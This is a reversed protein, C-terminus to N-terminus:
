LAASGVASSVAVLALATLLLQSGALHGMCAFFNRRVALKWWGVGGILGATFLGAYLAGNNVFAGAIGTAIGTLAGAILGRLAIHHRPKSAADPNLLAAFLSAAWLLWPALTGLTMLTLM